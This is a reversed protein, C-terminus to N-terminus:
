ALGTTGLLRGVLYTVAMALLGGGLVRVMARRRDADGLTASAFGTALLGVAVALVVWLIRNWAILAALIPISAGIGFSAASSLAAQWPSALEDRDIGLEVELHARLPDAATLEEAVRRATEESLGRDRYLQVLEDFEERPQTALEDSEKAILAKETDRQTSVSVYEGLAMSVAGAVLGAIGATLVAQRSVSAAAVGIVLGATSILGDNAGLVGARLWNLRDGVGPHHPESEHTATM